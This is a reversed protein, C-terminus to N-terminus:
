RENEGFISSFYNWVDWPVFTISNIVLTSPETQLLSDFNRWFFSTNYKLSIGIYQEFHIWIFKWLFVLRSNIAMGRFFLEIYKSCRNIREMSFQLMETQMDIHYFVSLVRKLRNSNWNPHSTPPWSCFKQISWFNMGVIWQISEM